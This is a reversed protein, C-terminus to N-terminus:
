LWVEVTKITITELPMDTQSVPVANIKDVVEMGQTVQGIITNRGDLFEARNATIIMFQSGNAQPGMQAMLVDGRAVPQKTKEWPVTYGPGGKGWSSIMEDHKTLPDGGQILLGPISRHFNTGQYFGSQALKYFNVVNRPAKANFSVMIDGQGTRIIARTYEIKPPRQVLWWAKLQPYYPSIVGVLISGVIVGMGVGAALM